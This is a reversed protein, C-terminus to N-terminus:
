WDASEKFPKEFANKIGSIFSYSFSLFVGGEMKSQLNTLSNPDQIPDGINLGGPLRDTPAWMYGLTVAAKDGFRYSPGVMYSTEGSDSSALGFTAAWQPKKHHYLHIMGVVGLTAEDEAGADRIVVEQM